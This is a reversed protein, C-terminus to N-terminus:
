GRPLYRTPRPRRQAPPQPKQSKAQKGQGAAGSKAGPQWLMFENNLKRFVEPLKETLKLCEAITKAEVKMDGTHVLSNRVRVYYEFRGVADTEGIREVAHDYGIRALAYFLRKKREFSRVESVLFETINGKVGVNLLYASYLEEFWLEYATAFLNVVMGQIAEDPVNFLIHMSQLISQYNTNSPFSQRYRGSDGCNPCPVSGDHFDEHRGVYGCMICRYKQQRDAWELARTRLVDLSLSEMEMVM